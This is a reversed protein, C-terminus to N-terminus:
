AVKWKKRQAAILKEALEKMLSSESWDIKKGDIASAVFSRKQEVLEALWEDITGIALFYTINVSEATSGPRPFRGEAQEENAPNWQRELMIADSCFQLNLGEGFALTSAILVRAESSRFQEIVKFRQDISLDSTLKLIGFTGCPGNVLDAFLKQGVDVHHVFITIKRDTNILFDTVFDICPEIKSLGTLHRMRSLAAIGASGISLDGDFEMAFQNATKEYAGSIEKDEMEIFQNQRFIKPLDPLVEARTRRFIYESTIRKFKDTSYSSLGGFKLSFGNDYYDVYESIFAAESNFNKRDLINLIPFYERANNKIPSNSTAIIHKKDACFERVAKTRKAEPNKIYQCEDIFVAKINIGYRSFDMKGVLDYSCIYARFGPVPVDKGTRLIQAIVGTWRHIEQFFQIVLSGKVIFLAPHLIDAHAKFLALDMVTKGTGMEHNFLVRFNAKAARSCDTVQFPFLSKGDSSKITSYDFVPIKKETALHGCALKIITYDQCLIRSAEKAIKGCAQCKDKLIM